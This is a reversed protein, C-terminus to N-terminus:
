SPDVPARARAELVIRRLNMRAGLSRLMGLVGPGWRLMIGFLHTGHNGRLLYRPRLRRTLDALAQMREADIEVPEDKEFHDWSLRAVESIYAQHEPDFRADEPYSGLQLLAQQHAPGGALVRDFFRVIDRHESPDAMRMAGFDLLGVRGDPLFVANGPHPDAYVMGGELMLRVLASYFLTGARDRVEQPPASALFERLHRGPLLDTVLVRRTTLSRHVGPVLIPLGALVRGARETREAELLYDTEEEIVVRHEALAARFGATDGLAALPALAAGLARFDSVVARAMGPYQVKVAVPEGTRLRARHVQGLSAAAFAEPEWQAFLEEPFAGLEAFVLERVREAPMPPVQFQLSALAELLAEPATGPLCALSQGVKALPGRLYGMGQVVRTAAELHADALAQKRADEGALMGRALGKLYAVAVQVQLSGLSWLRPLLGDPPDSAAPRGALRATAHDPATPFEALLDPLDLKEMM